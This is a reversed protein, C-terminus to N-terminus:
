RLRYLCRKVRATSLRLITRGVCVFIFEWFGIFGDRYMKASIRLEGRLFKFSRRNFFANNVNMIVLPESFNAFEIGRRKLLYWLHYYELPYEVGSKFIEARLVVSPHCIPNRRKMIRIIDANDCPMVKESFVQDSDSDVEVVSTGCVGVDTNQALFDVQREFRTPMSIDDADMRAILDCRVFKLGENLANALGRNYPLRRLTLVNTPLTSEFIEIASDHTPHLPGDCVLIIQNPKLTQSQFISELAKGFRQTCDGKHVAMLVSLTPSEM